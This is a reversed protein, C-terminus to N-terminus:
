PPDGSSVRYLVYAGNTWVQELRANGPSAPWPKPPLTSYLFDVQALQEPSHVIVMRRPHTRYMMVKYVDALTRPHVGPAPADFIRGDYGITGDDPVHAAIWESGPVTSAVKRARVVTYRLGQWDSVVGVALVV